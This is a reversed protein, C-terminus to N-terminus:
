QGNPPSRLSQVVASVSSIAGHTQSGKAANPDRRREEQKLVQLSIVSIILFSMGIPNNMFPNTQSQIYIFLSSLLFGLAIRKYKYSRIQSYNHVIVGLLALWFMLGLLGQKHFIELFSIEFHVPRVPVGIGFGHGIFISIPTIREAAQTLQLLRGLNSPNAKDLFSAGIGVLYPLCIIYLVILSIKALRNRQIFLMHFTFVRVLSLMFGRTSTLVIAILLLLAIVRNKPGRDLSYFILGICLFLFGKYFFAGNSRFSFDRSLKNVFSSFKDSDVINLYILLLMSLYGVGLVLSSLKVLKIARRIDGIRQIALYFFISMFFYILTKIDIAMDITAANNFIGVLLGVLVAVVFFMLLGFIQKNFQPRCCLLF